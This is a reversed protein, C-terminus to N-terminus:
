HSIVDESRLRPTRVEFASFVNRFEARDFPYNLSKTNAKRQYDLLKLYNSMFGTKTLDLGMYVQNM